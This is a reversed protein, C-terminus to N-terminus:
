RVRGRRALNVIALLVVAGLLSVLFSYITLPANNISGGSFILGGLFAGVVGVVINLFIGQQADTRMIMSALWGIVGGIILWLIIGM